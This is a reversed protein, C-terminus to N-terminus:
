GAKFPHHCKGHLCLPSLRRQANIKKGFMPDNGSSQLSRFKVTKWTYQCFVEGIWVSWGPAPNQNSVVELNSDCFPCPATNSLEKAFARYTTRSNNSEPYMEFFWKGSHLIPSGPADPSLLLHYALISDGFNWSDQPFLVNLIKLELQLSRWATESLPRRM